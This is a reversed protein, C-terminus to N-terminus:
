EGCDDDVSDAADSPESVDVEFKEVAGGASPELTLTVSDPNVVTGTVKTSLKFEVGQKKLIKTFNSTIEKDLSPTITDLFEIVTVKTGLRRWVSGM